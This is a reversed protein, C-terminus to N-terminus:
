IELIEAPVGADSDGQDSEDEPLLGVIVGFADTLAGTVTEVDLTPSNPAPKNPAPEPKVVKVAQSEKYLWHAVLAGILFVQIPM